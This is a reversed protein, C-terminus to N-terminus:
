KATLERDQEENKSTSVIVMGLTAMMLLPAMLSM